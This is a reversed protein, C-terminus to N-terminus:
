YAGGAGQDGEGGGEKVVLNGTGSNAAATDFDLPDVKSWAGEAVLIVRGDAIEQRFNRRICEVNVPDPEVIIVKSAGRRLADDGFTGIHAGIDLVVDNKRVGRDASSESLWQQKAIVYALLHQGDLDAGNKKISFPRTATDFLQIGLPDDQKATVQKLTLKQLEAFRSDSWPPM